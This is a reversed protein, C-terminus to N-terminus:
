SSWFGPWSQTHVRVPSARDFAERPRRSRRRLNRTSPCEWTLNWRGRGKRWTGSKSIECIGKFRIKAAGLDDKGACDPAPSM